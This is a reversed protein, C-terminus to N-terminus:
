TLAENLDNNIQTYVEEVTNRAMPVEDAVLRLPVGLQNNTTNPVYRKGYIQALMYYSFARFAYAEGIAQKITTADAATPAPVNPGN